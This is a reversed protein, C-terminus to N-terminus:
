SRHVIDMCANTEVAHFGARQGEQDSKLLEEAEDLVRLLDASVLADARVQEAIQDM